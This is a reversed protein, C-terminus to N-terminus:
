CFWNFNIFTFVQHQFYWKRSFGFRLDTNTVTVRSPFQEEINEASVINNVM